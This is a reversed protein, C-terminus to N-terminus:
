NKKYKKVEDAAAVKKRHKGYGYAGAGAATAAALLWLLNMNTGEEFPKDALPVENKELKVIEKDSGATNNKRGTNDVVPISNNDASQAVANADADGEGEGDGNDVRVGAVGRSAAAGAGGRAVTRGAGTGAGLDGATLGPLGLSGLTGADAGTYTYTAGTTSSSSSGSEEYSDDDDDSSSSSSSSSSDTGETGSNEEPKVPAKWDALARAARDAEAKAKNAATRADGAKKEAEERVAKVEDLNSQERELIDVATEIAAALKESLLDISLVEPNKELNAPYVYGLANYADTNFKQARLTTLTTNLTNNLEALDVVTDDDLTIKTDVSTASLKGVATKHAAKLAKLKKDVLNLRAQADDIKGKVIDYRAKVDVENKRAEDLETLADNALKLYDQAKIRAQKIRTLDGEAATLYKDLNEDPNGDPKVYEDAEKLKGEAFKQGKLPTVYQSVATGISDLLNQNTAITEEKQKKNALLSGAAPNDENAGETGYGYLKRAADARKAENDNWLELKSDYEGKQSGILEKAEKAANDIAELEVLAAQADDSLTRDYKKYDWSRSRFLM